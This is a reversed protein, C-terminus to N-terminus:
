KQKRTPKAPDLQKAPDVDTAAEAVPPTKAAQEQAVKIAAAFDARARALHHQDPNKAKSMVQLDFYTTIFNGALPLTALELVIDREDTAMAEARRAADAPSLGLKQNLVQAVQDLKSM